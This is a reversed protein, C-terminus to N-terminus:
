SENYVWDNYVSGDGYIVKFTDVTDVDIKKQGDLGIFCCSFSQSKKGKAYECLRKVSVQIDRDKYSYTCGRNVLENSKKKVAPHDSPFFDRASVFQSKDVKKLETLRLKNAGICKAISILENVAIDKEEELYYGNFTSNISIDFNVGNLAQQLYLFSVVRGLVLSHVYEHFHHISVQLEDILNNILSVNAPSLLTGNTNLIIRKKHPRILSILEVVSLIDLFPEGGTIIVTQYDQMSIAKKAIKGVNIEVDEKGGNDVCFFCKGNCKKNIRISIMKDVERSCLNSKHPKIKM